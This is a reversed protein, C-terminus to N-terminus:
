SGRQVIEFICDCFNVPTPLSPWIWFIFEITSLIHGTSGSLALSSIFFTGKLSAVNLEPNKKGCWRDIGILWTCLIVCKKQVPWTYFQYIVQWRWRLMKRDPVALKTPPRVGILEEMTSKKTKSSGCSSCHVRPYFLEIHSQTKLPLQCWYEM